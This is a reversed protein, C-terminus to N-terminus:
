QFIGFVLLHVTVSISVLEPYWLTFSSLFDDGFGKCTLKAPVSVYVAM